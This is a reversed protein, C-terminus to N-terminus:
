GNTQAKLEDLHIRCLGIDNVAPSGCLIANPVADIWCSTFELNHYLAGKSIDCTLVDGCSHDYKIGFFGPFFPLDHSLAESIHEPWEAEALLTESM